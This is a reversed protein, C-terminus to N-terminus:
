TGTRAGYPAQFCTVPKGCLGIVTRMKRMPHRQSLQKLDTITIHLYIQTTNLSKHGLLKQIAVLHAGEQLLHTACTHRLKHPTVKKDIGARAAYKKVMFQIARSTLAGGKKSVFLESITSTRSTLYDKIVDEVISDLPVYRISGRKKSM